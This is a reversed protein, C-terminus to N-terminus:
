IHQVFEAEDEKWPPMVRPGALSDATALHTTLRPASTNRISRRSLVSPHRRTIVDIRRVQVDRTLM